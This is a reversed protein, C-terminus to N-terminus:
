ESLAYGVSRVTRILDQGGPENLAARLRGIHVDITRPGIHVSRPWAAHQLEDRSHVRLPNKMLHHLLRFETPALHINRGNRRVCYSALDLELDVFTLLDAVSGRPFQAQNKLLGRVSAILREATFPRALCADAGRYPDDKQCMDDSEAGLVLIATERTQKNLRIRACLSQIDVGPLRSELLLLSPRREELREVLATLDSDTVVTLGIHRLIYELFAQFSVDAAGILALPASPSDPDSHETAM